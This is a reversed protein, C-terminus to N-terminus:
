LIRLKGFGVTLLSQEYGLQHTAHLSQLPLYLRELFLYVLIILYLFLLHDGFFDFLLLNISLLVRTVAALHSSLLNGPQLSHIGAIPINGFLPPGIIARGRRHPYGCLLSWSSRLRAGGM